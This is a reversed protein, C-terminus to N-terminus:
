APRLLVDFGSIRLEDEPIGRFQPALRSRSIPLEDWCNVGLLTIDFGAGRFLRAALERRGVHTRM